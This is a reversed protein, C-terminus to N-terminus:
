KKGGTIKLRWIVYNFLRAIQDSFVFAIAIAGYVTIATSVLEGFTMDM